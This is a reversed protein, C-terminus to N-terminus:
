VRLAASLIQLQSEYQKAFDQELLANRWDKDKSIKEHLKAYAKWYQADAKGFKSHIGDQVFRYVLTQPSLKEILSDLTHQCADHIAIQNAQIDKCSQNIAEIGQLYGPKHHIIVNM